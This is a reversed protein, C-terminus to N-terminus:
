VVSKRDPEALDFELDVAVLTRSLHYMREKALETQAEAEVTEDDDEETSPIGLDEGRARIAKSVKSTKGSTLALWYQDTRAKLTPGAAKFAASQQREWADLQPRLPRTFDPTVLELQAQRSARIQAVQEFYNIAPVFLATFFGLIHIKEAIVDDDGSLQLKVVNTIVEPLEKPVATEAAQVWTPGMETLFQMAIDRLEEDNRPQEKDRSRSGNTPAGRTWLTTRDLVKLFDRLFYVVKKQTPTFTSARRGLGAFATQVKAYAVPKSLHTTRAKNLRQLLITEKNQHNASM